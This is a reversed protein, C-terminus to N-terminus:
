WLLVDIFVIWWAYSVILYYLVPRAWKELFAHIDVDKSITRKKNSEDIPEEIGGIQAVLDMGVILIAPNFLVNLFLLAVGAIKSFVFMLVVPLGINAVISMISLTKRYWAAMRYFIFGLITCLIIELVYKLIPYYKHIPTNITFFSAAHLYVGAFLGAPTEYKDTLGYSGGLFVVRGELDSGVKDIIEVKARGMPEIYSTFEFNLSKKLDSIIPSMRLSIFQDLEEDPLDCIQKEHEKGSESRNNNSSNARHVQSALTRTDILYELIVGQRSYLYPLGFHLGSKCMSRMWKRKELILGQTKVKVPTILIIETKSAYNALLGNLARQASLGGGENGGDDHSPSLDLDIALVKPNKILIAEVIDYLVKRDLPSIHKFEEEYLNDNITFVMASGSDDRSSYTYPLTPNDLFITPVALKIVNINLDDLWGCNGLIVSFSVVLLAAKLSRYSFFNEQKNFFRRVFNTKGEECYM